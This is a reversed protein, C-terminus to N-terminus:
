ESRSGEIYLPKLMMLVVLLMLRGWHRLEREINRLTIKSSDDISVTIAKAKM